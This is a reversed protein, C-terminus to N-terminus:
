IEIINFIVNYDTSNLFEYSISTGEKIEILSTTSDGAKFQTGAISQTGRNLGDSQSSAQNLTFVHTNTSGHLKNYVNSNSTSPSNLTANETISFSLNNTDNNVISLLSIFVRKGSSVPNTIQYVIDTTLHNMHYWLYENKLSYELFSDIYNNIKDYINLTLSELGDTNTKLDNLNSNVTDLKSNTDIQNTSTANDSTNSIVSDLKTNTNLINSNINDTNTEIANATTEKAIDTSDTIKVNNTDVHFTKDDIYTLITNTEELTGEVTANPSEPLDNMDEPREAYYMELVKSPLSFQNSITFSSFQINPIKQQVSLNIQKNPNNDYIMFASMNSPAKKVFIGYGRQNFNYTKIDTLDILIKQLAM